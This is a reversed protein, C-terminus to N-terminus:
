GKWGVVGLGVGAAPRVWEAEEGTTKPDGNTKKSDEWECGTPKKADGKQKWPCCKAM